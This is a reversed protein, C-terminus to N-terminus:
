GCLAASFAAFYMTAYQANIGFDAQRYYTRAQALVHFSGVIVGLVDNLYVRCPQVPSRARCQCAVIPCPWFM